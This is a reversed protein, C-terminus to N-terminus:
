GESSAMCNWPAAWNIHVVLWKLEWRPKAMMINWYMLGEVKRGVGEVGEVGEM